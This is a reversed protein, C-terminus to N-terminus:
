KIQTLLESLEGDVYYELDKYKKISKLIGKESSVDKLFPLIFSVLVEKIELERKDNSYKQNELDFMNRAKDKGIFQDLNYGLNKKYYPPFKDTSQFIKKVFCGMLDEYRGAFPSKELVFFCICEETHLYWTDGKKIYGQPKLISNVIGFLDKKNAIM